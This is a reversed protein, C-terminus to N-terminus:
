VSNALLKDNLSNRAPLFDGNKPVRLEMEYWNTRPFDTPVLHSLIGHTAIGTGTRGRGAADLLFASDQRNLRKAVSFGRFQGASVPFASLGSGYICVPCQHSLVIYHILVTFYRAKNFIDDPLVTFLFSFFYHTCSHNTIAFLHRICVHFICQVMHIFKVINKRSKLFNLFYCVTRGSTTSTM